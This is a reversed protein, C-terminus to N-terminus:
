DHSSNPAVRRMAEAEELNGQAQLVAILNQRNNQTDLHDAGLVREQVVLTERYLEEAEVLRGQNFIAFALDSQSRLTAPHEPGFAREMAALTGRRFVEAEEARGQAMIAIGLNVRIDLTDPHEPGLLTEFAGLTERWLTEAQQYSGDRFAQAAAVSVELARDLEPDTARQLADSATAGQHVIRAARELIAFEANRFRGQDEIGASRLFQRIAERTGPGMVGDIAGGYFGLTQLHRQVETLVARQDNSAQANV